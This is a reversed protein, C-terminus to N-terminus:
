LVKEKSIVIDGLVLEGSEPNFAEESKEFSDFKGPIEYELMPFSLVDTERDIQRFTRNMERIEENMTLLINIEAEYPCETYDLAADTVEQAIKKVDLPLSLSGEEEIYLSM